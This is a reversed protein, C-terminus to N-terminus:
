LVFGYVTRYIGSRHKVRWGCKGDFFYKHYEGFLFSASFPYITQTGYFFYFELGLQSSFHCTLGAVFSVVVFYVPEFFVTHLIWSFKGKKMFIEKLVFKVTFLLQRNTTVPRHSFLLKSGIVFSGTLVSLFIITSKKCWDELWWCPYVIPSNCRIIIEGARFLQDGVWLFVFIVFLFTM